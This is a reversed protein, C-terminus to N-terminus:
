TSGAIKKPPHSFGVTENTNLLATAGRDVTGSPPPPATPPCERRKASSTTAPSTTRTWSGSSSSTSRTPRPPTSTSSSCRTGARTGGRTEPSAARASRAVTSCSCTPTWSGQLLVGDFMMYILDPWGCLISLFSVFCGSGSCARVCNGLFDNGSLGKADVIHVELVGKGM